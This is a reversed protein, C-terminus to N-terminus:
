VKPYRGGLSQLCYPSAELNFLVDRYKQNLRKCEEVIAAVKAKCQKVAHEWSTSAKEDVQLGDGPTQQVSEKLSEVKHAMHSACKARHPEIALFKDWADYFYDSRKSPLETAAESADDPIQPPPDRVIRIPFPPPQPTDPEAM